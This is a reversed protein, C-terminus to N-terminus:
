KRPTYPGEPKWSELGYQTRKLNAWGAKHKGSHKFQAKGAKVGGAAIGEKVRRPLFNYDYINDYTDEFTEQADPLVEWEWGASAPM